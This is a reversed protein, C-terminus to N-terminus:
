ADEKETDVREPLLGGAKRKETPGLFGRTRCEQVWRAATSHSVEFAKEVTQTPPYDKRWAVTYLEAVKRYHDNGWMRPRSGAEGMFKTALDTQFLAHAHDGAQECVGALAEADRGVRQRAQQTLWGVPIARVIQATIIHAPEPPDDRAPPDFEAIEFGVCEYRGSIQRWTLNM